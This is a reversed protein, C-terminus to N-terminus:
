KMITGRRSKLRAGFQGDRDPFRSYWANVNMRGAVAVQRTSELLFNVTPEAWGLPADRPVDPEPFLPPGAQARQEAIVTRRAQTYTEGATTMRQRAAAKIKDHPM